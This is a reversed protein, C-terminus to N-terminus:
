AAAADRPAHPAGMGEALRWAIRTAMAMITIQPNVGICSPFVSADAVHLGPLAYSEGWRDVACRERDRGMAATGVPHFGAISLSSAPWGGETIRPIESPDTLAGLGAIGPNVRRAGAAFFVRAAIGIGHLLRRTDDANLGYTLLPQGGPLRRVRGESSEAVFLGVSAVKHYAALAEKLAAGTGPLGVASLGPFPSTVEFLLGHSEQFDDMFFPQMTGRWGYVDEDFVATVALAPHIRLRRGVPGGRPALGTGM